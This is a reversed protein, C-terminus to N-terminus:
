GGFLVACLRWALVWLVLSLAGILPVAVAWPLPETGAALTGSPATRTASM